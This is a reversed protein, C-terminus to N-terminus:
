KVNVKSDQLFTQINEESRDDLKYFNRKEQM